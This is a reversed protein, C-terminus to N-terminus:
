NIKDDESGELDKKLKRMRKMNAWHQRGFTDVLGIQFRQGDKFWNIERDFVFKEEAGVAVKIPLEIKPLKPPMKGRHSIILMDFQRTVLSHWKWLRGVILKVTADTPGHNVVSVVVYHNTTPKDKAGDVYYGAGVELKAKPYIFKSWVNWALSFLSAGASCVSVILAYDATTWQGAM